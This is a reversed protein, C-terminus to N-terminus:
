LGHHEAATSVRRRRPTPEACSVAPATGDDALPGRRSTEHARRSGQLGAAPEAAPSSSAFNRFPKPVLILLPLQTTITPECHPSSPFPFITSTRASSISM